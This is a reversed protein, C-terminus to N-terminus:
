PPVVVNLLLKYQLMGMNFCNEAAFFDFDQWFNTGLNVTQKPFIFTYINFIMVGFSVEM